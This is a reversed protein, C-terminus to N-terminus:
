SPSLVQKATSKWGKNRLESFPLVYFWKYEEIIDQPKMQLIHDINRHQTIYYYYPYDKTGWRAKFRHLSQQSESTGGFNWYKYSNTIAKKMGEYILLSTGQEMSYEYRLAPVLYDVTNKFLSVLLGAIIVGDKRAYTLDYDKEEMVDHFKQFFGVPKVNGGKSSINEKHMEFLPGFDKSFEFTVGHKLPRRIARRNSPEVLNYMIEQEANHINNRFEVIQAVRKDKFKYRLNNEYFSIDLDFPSTVIISLICDKEKALASFENLLLKKVKAKERDDFRSRVLVGGHSGFFPLSNLINGYKKNEKLFSPMAGIVEGSDIAVIYSPQCSLFDSLLNRYPISHTFMAERCNHLMDRYGEEYHETLMTIEIM